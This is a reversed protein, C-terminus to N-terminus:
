KKLYNNNTKIENILNTNAYLRRKNNTVMKEFVDEPYSNKNPLVWKLESELKNQRSVYYNIESRLEESVNDNSQIVLLRGVIRNEINTLGNEDVKYFDSVNDYEMKVSDIIKQIESTVPLQNRIEAVNNTIEDLSDGLRYMYLADVVDREFYEESSYQNKKEYFTDLIERIEKYKEYTQKDSVSLEESKKQEESQSTIKEKLEKLEEIEQARSSKKQLLSNQTDNEKSQITENSKVNSAVIRSQYSGEKEKKTKYNQEIKNTQEELKQIEKVMENAEKLLKDSIQFRQGNWLNNKVVNSMNRMIDISKKLSYIKELIPKLQEQLEKESNYKGLRYELASKYEETIEEIKLARLLRKSEDKGSQRIPYLGANIIDTDRYKNKIEGNEDEYKGDFVRYNQDSLIRSCTSQIFMRERKEYDEVKIGKPFIGHNHYILVDGAKYTEKKVLQYVDMSILPLGTLEKMLNASLSKGKDNLGSKVDLMLSKSSQKKSFLGDKTVVYDLKNLEDFLVQLLESDRVIVDLKEAEGRANTLKDRSKKSDFFRQTVEARSIIELLDQTVIENM